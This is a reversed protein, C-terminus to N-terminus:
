VNPRLYQIVNELADHQPHNSGPSFEQWADDLRTQLSILGDLEDAAIERIAVVLNALRPTVYAPGSM